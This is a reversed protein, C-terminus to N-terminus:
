YEEVEEDDTSYASDDVLYDSENEDYSSDWSEESGQDTKYYSSPGIARWDVFHKSPYTQPQSVAYLGLWFGDVAAGTLSFKYVYPIVLFPEFTQNEQILDNMSSELSQSFQINPRSDFPQEFMIPGVIVNKNYSFVAPSIEFTGQLDQDQGEDRQDRLEELTSDIIDNAFEQENDM